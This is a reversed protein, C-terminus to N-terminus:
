MTPHAHYSSVRASKYDEEIKMCRFTDRAVCPDILRNNTGVYECLNLLASNTNKQVVIKRCYEMGIVLIHNPRIYNQQTSTSITINDSPNGCKATCCSLQAEKFQM